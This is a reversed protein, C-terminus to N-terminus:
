DDDNENHNEHHEDDNAAAAMNECYDNVAIEALLHVLDIAATM